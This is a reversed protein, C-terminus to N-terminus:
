HLKPATGFFPPSSLTRCITVIAQQNVSMM